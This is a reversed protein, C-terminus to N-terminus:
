PDLKRVNITRYNQKREQAWQINVFFVSFTESSGSGGNKLVKLSLRM